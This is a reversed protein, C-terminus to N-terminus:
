KRLIVMVLGYSPHIKVMKLNAVMTGQGRLNSSRVKRGAGALGLLASSGSLQPSEQGTQACSSL